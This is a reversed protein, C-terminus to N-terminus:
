DEKTNYMGEPAKIALGKSILGRFDVHISCLYMYTDLTEYENVSHDDYDNNVILLSSYYRHYEEQNLDSLPRLYPKINCKDGYLLDTFETNGATLTHTGNRDEVKVGYPLRMCLDELLLQKEAQTM